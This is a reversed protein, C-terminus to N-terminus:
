ADCGVIVIDYSVTSGVLNAIRLIDATGATVAWGTADFRSVNFVDGPTLNIAGTAASFPGTFTNAGANGIQISGANTIAARVVIQKIRVFDLARGNADLLGSGALDLNDTGSGAITRQASYTRNAQGSATGLAIPVNGNPSWEQWFQAGASAFPNANAAATFNLITSIKGQM